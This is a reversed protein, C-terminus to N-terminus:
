CTASCMPPNDPGAVGPQATDRPGDQGTTTTDTGKVTPPYVPFSHAATDAV